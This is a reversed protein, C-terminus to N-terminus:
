KIEVPKGLFKPQKNLMLDLFVKVRAFKERVKTKFGMYASVDRANFGVANLGLRHSIYIARRNHFEQSIVTFKKQGFIKDLRYVSDYTRFGAYDLYILSDPIGERILENKMDLPENYTSRSNDGSIVFCRVKNLKYLQSAAKIRNTFYENPIGSHLYKSTGLILGVKNSPIENEDNFVLAYTSNEIIHNSLIVLTIVVLLLAIAARIIFKRSFLKKIYKM